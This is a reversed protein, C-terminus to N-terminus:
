CSTRTSSSGKRGDALSVLTFFVGLEDPKLMQQLQPWTLEGTAATAPRSEMRADLWAALWRVFGTGDVKRREEM